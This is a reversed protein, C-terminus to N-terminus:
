RVAAYPDKKEESEAKDAAKVWQAFTKETYLAKGDADVLALLMTEMQQRDADSGALYEPKATETIKGKLTSASKGAKALRDYEEQVASADWSDVAEVLDDTASSNDGKLLKDALQNVAGTVCDVVDGRKGKPLRLADSLQEIMQMELEYRKQDDGANQAEAAAKVNADYKVLRTKLQKYVDEGKGMENLKEVAAKAEDSDGSAYANYLRDYQGTASQPVSNFSFTGGHALNEIDEVYGQVAEM